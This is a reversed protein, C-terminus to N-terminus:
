IFLSLIKVMHISKQDRINKVFEVVDKLVYKHQVGIKFEVSASTTNVYFIPELEIKGYIDDQLVPLMKEETCKSILRKLKPTTVIKMGKQIGDISELFNKKLQSGEKERIREMEAYELAVAVCHKCMGPYQMSALCDCGYDAIMGDKGIEVFVSYVNRGSGEVQADAFIEGEAVTVELDHIRGQM